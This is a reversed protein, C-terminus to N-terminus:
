DGRPKLAIGHKLNEATFRDKIKIYRTTKPLDISLRRTASEKMKVELIELDSNYCVIYPYWYNPFYSKLDLHNTTEDVEFWFEGSSHQFKKWGSHAIKHADALHLSDSKLAYHWAGENASVVHLTLGYPALRESLTVPDIAHQSQYGIKWLTAGEGSRLKLTLVYHYGMRNLVENLIRMTFITPTQFSFQAELSKPQRYFIRLLGNERLVETMAITNVTGEDSIFRSEEKFLHELLKKHTILTSPDVLKELQKWIHDSANLTLVGLLLILVLRM